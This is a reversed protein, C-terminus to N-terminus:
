FHAGGCLRMKSFTTQKCLNKNNQKALEIKKFNQKNKRLAKIEKVKSISHLFFGKEMASYNCYLNAPLKLRPNYCNCNM